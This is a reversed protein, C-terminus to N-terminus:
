KVKKILTAILDDKEKLQSKLFTILEDQTKKNESYVESNIVFANQNNAYNNFIYKEDFSILETLSIGLVTAIQNAKEITVDVEDREIRSYGPLSMKLNDAMQERTIKKLERLQKVKQGIKATSLKEKM